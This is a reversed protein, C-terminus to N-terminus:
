ATPRPEELLPAIDRKLSGESFAGARAIRLIGSRDIVFNSPVAGDIPAYGSGQIKTVLPFSLLAALPKM